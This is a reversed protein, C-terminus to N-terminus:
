VFYRYQLPSIEFETTDWDCACIQKRLSLVNKLNGGCLMKVALRTWMAKEALEIDDFCGWFWITWKAWPPNKLACGCIELVEVKSTGLNEWLKRRRKPQTRGHSAEPQPQQPLVGSCNAASCPWSETTSRSRSAFAARSLLLQPRPSPNPPFVEQPMPNRTLPLSYTSPESITWSKPPYEKWLNQSLTDFCKCWHKTNNNTFVVINNRCKPDSDRQILSKLRSISHCAWWLGFQKQTELTDM